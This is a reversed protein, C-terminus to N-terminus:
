LLCGTLSPLPSDHSPNLTPPPDLPGPDYPETDWLQTVDSQLPSSDITGILRVEAVSGALKKSAVLPRRPQKAATTPPPAPAIKSQIGPDYPSHVCLVKPNAEQRASPSLRCSSPPPSSGYISAPPVSCDLGLSQHLSGSNTFAAQSPSSDPSPFQTMFTTFQQSEM